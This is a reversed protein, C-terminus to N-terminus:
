YGRQLMKEHMEFELAVRNVLSKAIKRARIMGTKANKKTVEYFARPIHLGGRGTRGNLYDEKTVLYHTGKWDFGHVASGKLPDIIRDTGHEIDYNTIYM